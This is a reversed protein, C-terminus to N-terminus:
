RLPPAYILGGATWLNNLGRPLGIASKAGVNRDFMEGYNGVTRIVDYAWTEALGLAQGNGPTVGLLRKIDASRSRMERDVNASSVGLEEAEIMAYVTWRLVNYLALDRQRVIPALPEKSILDSLVDFRDHDSLRSRLAGLESVDATYVGCRGSAVSAAAQDHSALLQKKLELSNATFYSALNAEFLTGADVCIPVGALDSVHKAGIAKSVLFGQGDYFTVPGFFVGLGERTLSWTLRRSVIDVDNSRLFEEISSAQRFEVKDPAGLTAAAVARCVDVDLGVHRGQADVMAFGAIGPAIGCILSGRQKITDVRNSPASAICAPLMFAIAAISIRKVGEM